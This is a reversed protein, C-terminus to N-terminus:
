SIDRSDITDIRGLDAVGPVPCQDNFHHRIWDLQGTTYLRTFMEVADPDYRAGAGAALEELAREAAAHGIEGRYPRLSTLADFSDIVAFYRPGMALAAGSLGDPYGSGDIREHHHRVLSLVVQDDVGRARLFDFGRTTHTQIIRFEDDTLPGPKQLIADPIELKGIDHLAAAYCIRDIFDRALGLEEAIRRAYLTVRWTHAATTMDKREIRELLPAVEAMSIVRGSLHSGDKSLPELM